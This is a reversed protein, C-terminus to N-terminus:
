DESVSEKYPTLDCGCIVCTPVGEFIEIGIDIASVAELNDTDIEHWDDHRTNATILLEHKTTRRKIVIKGDCACMKKWSEM